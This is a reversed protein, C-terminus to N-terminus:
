AFEGPLGVLHVKVPSGALHFRGMLTTVEDQNLGLLYGSCMVIKVHCFIHLMNSTNYFM